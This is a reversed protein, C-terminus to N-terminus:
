CCNCECSGDKCIIVITPCCGSSVEKPECCEASETAGKSDCCTVTVKCCGSAKEEQGEVIKKEDSM